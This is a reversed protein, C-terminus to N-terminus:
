EWDGDRSPHYNFNLTKYKSAGLQDFEFVGKMWTPHVGYSVVLSRFRDFALRMTFRMTAGSAIFDDVFVLVAKKCVTSTMGFDLDHEVKIGHSRETEKRVYMMRFKFDPYLRTIALVLATAASVGSMGSYCFIPINKQTRAGMFYEVVTKAWLESQALLERSKQALSYHTSMISM